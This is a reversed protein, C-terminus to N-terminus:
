DRAGPWRGAARAPGAAPRPAPRRAAASLTRVRGDARFGPAALGVLARAQAGIEPVGDTEWWQGRRPPGVVLLGDHARGSGSVLRGGADVDFGMGLPDRRGLGTALLERGFSSRTASGAGTCNVITGVRWVAGSQATALFQTGDVTVSALTAARVRLASDALMGRVVIAVSPAMRHRHIEWYRSAHRLFRAREEPTLNAWLTNVHPRIGDLVGRWDQAADADHRIERLLARLGDVGSPATARAPTPEMAHVLPLLGHRSVAHITARIGRAHLLLAVDIATLGTGLLLVPSDLPITDLVEPRWPDAVYGPHCVVADTLRGPRDPSSHGIALVARDARVEGARDTAVRVGDGLRLGTARARLHTFRGPNGTAADDLVDRLYRGYDRRAAFGAPGVPIGNRRTWNVFDDPQDPDGSMTAARSNLVHAVVPTGYAVGIGLTAAPEVVTVHDTGHRLLQAATLVGSCGGGVVVTSTRGM